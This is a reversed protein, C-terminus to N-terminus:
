VRFGLCLNAVEGRMGAARFQSENGAACGVTRHCIALLGHWLVTM